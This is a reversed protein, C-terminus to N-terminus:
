TQKGVSTQFCGPRPARARLAAPTAAVKGALARVRARRELEGGGLQLAQDDGVAVAHDRRRGRGRSLVKVRAPAAAASARPACPAADGLLLLTEGVAKDFGQVVQVLHVVHRGGVHGQAGAPPGRRPRRTDIGARLRRGDVGVEAAVGWGRRGGSAGPGGNPGATRVRRGGDAVEGVRRGEGAAVRRLQAQAAAGGGELFFRLGHGLRAAAVGRRRHRGDVHFVLLADFHLALPQPVPQRGGLAPLPLQLADRAQLVLHLRELGLVQPERVSGADEPLLHGLEFLLDHGM